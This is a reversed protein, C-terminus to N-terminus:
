KNLKLSLPISYLVPIEISAFMKNLIRRESFQSSAEKQASLVSGLLQLHSGHHEAMLVEM